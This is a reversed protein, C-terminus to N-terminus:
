GWLKLCVFVAVGTVSVYLWLPATWRALRRHRDFRDTLAFFLTSLVMPLAIVSGVIHTILIFFYVPRIFGQGRFPTDGQFHHYVIYSVLFAASVAVTLLMLRRHLERHGGRIAVIGATLFVASTFNLGANVAPLSATWAPASAAPDRFYILWFLFALALASVM